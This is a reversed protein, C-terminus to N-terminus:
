CCGNVKGRGHSYRGRLYVTEPGSGSPLRGHLDLVGREDTRASRDAAASMAAGAAPAAPLGFDLGLGLGSASRTMRLIVTSPRGLLGYTTMSGSPVTDCKVTVTVVALM